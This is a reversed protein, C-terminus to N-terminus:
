SNIVEVGLETFGGSSLRAAREMEGRVKGGRSGDSHAAGHRTEEGHEPYSLSFGHVMNTMKVSIKRSLNRPQKESACRSKGLLLSVSALVGAATLKKSGSSRPTPAAGSNTLWSTTVTNVLPKVPKKICSDFGLLESVPLKAKQSAPNM